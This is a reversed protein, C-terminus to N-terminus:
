RRFPTTRPRPPPQPHVDSTDRDTTGVNSKVGSSSQYTDETGVYKQLFNEMRQDMMEPYVMQSAVKQAAIQRSRAIRQQVEERSLGTMETTAGRMPEDTREQVIQRL